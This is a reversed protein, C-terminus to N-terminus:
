PRPESETTWRRVPRELFVWTVLAVVLTAATTIPLRAVWPLASVLREAELGYLHWTFASYSVVSVLALPRFSLVDTVFGDPSLALWLVLQAAALLQLPVLAPHPTTVSVVIFVSSLLATRGSYVLSADPRQWCLLAALAGVAIDAVRGETALYAYADPVLGSTRYFWRIGSSTAFLLSLGYMLYDLRNARHAWRLAFMWPIVFQAGVMLTWLHGLSHRLEDDLALAYYYNGLLSFFGPYREFPVPIGNKWQQVATAALVVMVLTPYTRVAKRSLWRGPGIVEGSHLRALLGTTVVFGTIVLLLVVGYGALPTMKALGPDVQNRGWHGVILMLIAIGRLGDIQPLRDGTYIGSIARRTM